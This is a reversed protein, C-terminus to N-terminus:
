GPKHPFEAPNLSPNFKARDHLAGAVNSETQLTEEVRDYISTPLGYAERAADSATELDPQQEGDIHLGYGGNPGPGYGIALRIVVTDRGTAEPEFVEGIGLRELEGSLHVVRALRVCERALVQAADTRRGIQTTLNLPVRQPCGKGDARHYLGVEPGSDMVLLYLGDSERGIRQKM